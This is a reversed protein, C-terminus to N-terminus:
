RGASGAAVPAPSAHQAMFETLVTVLAAAFRERDAQSSRVGEYNTEIQVGSVPGGDRSGHRVTNYGGNFYPEAGPGPSSASPVSPFGEAEFLAGLSTEGRIIEAFSAPSGESMTRISSQTEHAPTELAADPLALTTSTLLYGLELRPIDHGHGHLDIYFGTGHQDIVAQRAAETFSHFEAWARGALRNGKTAEALERNADIKTRRLRVIIIHPRGGAQNGFVNGITRALEETFTDRVTTIDAGTRDPIETPVLAGGHPATIIIPLDGAIYEIYENRGFYTQGAQPAASTATFDTAITGAVARLTQPAAADPGLMWTTAARGDGGTVVTTDSLHGDGTVTFRVSVGAMPAGDQDRAEVTPMGTLAVGATGVQQDGAVSTLSALTPVPASTEKGGCGAAVAAGIALVVLWRSVRNRQEADEIRARVFRPTAAPRRLNIRM